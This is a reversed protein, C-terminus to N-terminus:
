KKQQISISATFKIDLIMVHINSIIFHILTTFLTLNNNESQRISESAPHSM